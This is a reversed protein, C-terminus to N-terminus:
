SYNIESHKKNILILKPHKIKLYNKLKTKVLKKEITKRLNNKRRSHYHCIQM